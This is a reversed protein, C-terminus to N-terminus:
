HAFLLLPSQIDYPLTTLPTVSYEQLDLKGFSVGEGNQSQFLAYLNGMFTIARVIVEGKRM